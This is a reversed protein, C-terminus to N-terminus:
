VIPRVNHCRWRSYSQLLNYNRCLWSVNPCLRRPRPKIESEAEANIDGLRKYPYSNPFLIFWFEEVDWFSNRAERITPFWM